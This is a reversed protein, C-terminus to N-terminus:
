GGTIPTFISVADGDKLATKERGRRAVNEGNILLTLPPRVGDIVAFTEDDLTGAARLRRVLDGVTSGAGLEVSDHVAVYRAGLTGHIRAEVRIPPGPDPKRSRIM